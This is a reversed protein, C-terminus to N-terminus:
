KRTESPSRGFTKKYIQSFYVPSTFGVKYAIESISLNAAEQLLDNAKQLRIFRIYIATSMGTLAKLKRHVQSRSLLLSRALENGSFNEDDLHELITSEVKWLFSEEKNVVGTGDNRGSVLAGSYKKQLRKRIDLLRALRILLEAKEFPKVLYADAGQELGKIRDEIIGKATLLIIPIHSTRTDEKLISCVEFGDMLPMMVDSIIIDPLVKLAIEVGEKGNRSNLIRYNEQLCTILYYSVDANDEILLILPVEEDKEYIEHYTESAAALIAAKPKSPRAISEANSAKNTIPIQVTFESGKGITSKVAITGEMLEVLEKTQALGIGSGDSLRTSTNDVQYFREFINSLRDESIGVGNDRVKIIFFQKNNVLTQNLHVTIKGGSPTFKIANSLLNSIITELKKSDFDMMLQDIGDYVELNIHNDLAYSHFSECLYKVFPIVDSNILNLELNGSKLKALELMENVLKLLNEGNRRIMELPRTANHLPLDEVSSKLQNTMGLIVTLPTRFEHTINTYLSTKLQDIEKLRRGEEIALKKSLQFRYFSYAITSFFTIYLLYAWWRSWWATKILLQVSAGTYNWINNDNSGIVRFNYEGPDLNTYRAMQKTGAEIWDLDYPELKYKYQNKSPNSYHLGTYEISIDNQEHSLTINELNRYLIKDGNYTEGSIMLGNLIIEPPIPNGRVQDPFFSFLIGNGGFFLQGSSSKLLARSFRHSPLGNSIFRKTQPDFMSLGINTSLWLNGEPGELIGYVIDSPLGDAVTYQEFCSKDLNFHLLGKNETGLWFEGKSDEYFCIPKYGELFSSFSEKERNYLLLAGIGDDDGIWMRGKSDEEILHIESEKTQQMKGPLSIHKFIETDTNFRFLGGKGAGLWLYGERDKCIRYINNDPKLTDNIPLSYHKVNGTQLDYRRLSGITRQTSDNRGAGYAVWLMRNSDESFDYVSNNGINENGESHIFPAIQNTKLDLQYVGQTYMGLWIFGPESHSEHMRLVFGNNIEPYKSIKRNFPDMKHLGGQTLNGLWFQGSRDELFSWLRDNAIGNPNATDHAYHNVQESSPDFHNIGGGCTGIWFGGKNDQHLITIFPDTEWVKKGQPPYLRGPYRQDYEMRIFEDAIPDYSHLGNQFTGVLIRGEIDEMLASVRNDILSNNNNPEHLYRKLTETVPDFRMLGGANGENGYGTGIWIRNQRDALLVRVIDNTLSNPDLPDYLFRTFSDDERNYRFLGGNQMGIWLNNNADETMTTILGVPTQKKPNANYQYFCDCDSEYRSLGHATGIWLDGTYDVYLSETFDSILSTSDDPINRYIKFQYGDYKILGGGTALWLFGTHDQIMAIVNSNYPVGEIDIPIKEFNLEQYQPFTLFPVILFSFYIPVIKFVQKSTCVFNNLTRKSRM